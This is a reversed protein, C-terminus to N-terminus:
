NKYIPKWGGDRVSLLKMQTEGIIEERIEENTQSTLFKIKVTQM